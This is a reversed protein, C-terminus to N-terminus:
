TKLRRGVGPGRAEITVQDAPTFYTEEPNKWWGPTLREPRSISALDSPVNQILLPSVDTHKEGIEAEIGKKNLQKHASAAGYSGLCYSCAALPTEAALYRTLEEEFGERDDIKLGDSSLAADMPRDLRKLRKQMLHSRSCRFYRGDYLTHCNVSSYCGRFIREVLGHDHNEDNLLMQSFAAPRSCAVKAGHAQAEAKLKELDARIKVGPYITVMALDLYKWVGGPLEHLLVGNTAISTGECFGTEKAFRLFEKLEPHLLPEGGAFRMEDVHVVKSLALVDRKFDALSAFTPNWWPSSHDCKACKLNCHETLEFTLSTISISM